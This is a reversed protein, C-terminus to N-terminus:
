RLITFSGKIIDQKGSPDSVDLVYFYTGDKLDDGDWDNQYNNNEYVVKGWRNFVKLANGNFTELLDFELFDNIGDGNPTFVNLDRVVIECAEAVAEEGYKCEVGEEVEGNAARVFLKVEKGSIWHHIGFDDNSRYWEIEGNATLNLGSSDLPEGAQNVGRVEYYDAGEVVPWYFRQKIVGDDSTVISCIPDTKVLSDAVNVFVSDAGFCMSNDTTKRVVLKYWGTKDMLLTDTDENPVLQDPADLGYYWERVYRTNTSATDENYNGSETNILDYQDGICIISDNGIEVRVKQKTIRIINSDVCGNNFTVKSKIIFTNGDGYGVGETDLSDNLEGTLVADNNVQGGVFLNKLILKGDSDYGITDHTKVGNISDLIWTYAIPTGVSLPDNPDIPYNRFKGKVLDKIIPWDEELCADIDLTSVKPHQYYTVFTEDEAYCRARFKQKNYTYDYNLGIGVTWFGDTKNTLASGPFEYTAPDPETVTPLVDFKSNRKGGQTFTLQAPAGSSQGRYKFVFSDARNIVGANQAKLADLYFPTNTPYCFDKQSDIVKLNDDDKFTYEFTTNSVYIPVIVDEDLSFGGRNVLTNADDGKRSIMVYRGPGLNDHLVVTFEDFEGIGNVNKPDVIISDIAQTNDDAPLLTTGRFIRFDRRDLSNLLVPKTLTFDLTNSACDFEWASQTNNFNASEVTPLNPNCLNQASIIIRLQRNTRSIVVPNAVDLIRKLNGNGDPVLKLIPREETVEINIAATYVTQGTPMAPVFYLVGTNPDFNFTDAPFPRQSSLPSIMRAAENKDIFVSTLRFSLRDEFPIKEILNNGSADTVIYELDEGDMDRVLKNLNYSYERGECVSEVVGTNTLWETTKNIGNNVIVKENPPTDASGTVLETCTPLVVSSIYFTQAQEINHNQPSQFEKATTINGMDLDAYVAFYTKNPDLMVPSSPDNRYIGGDTVVPNNLIYDLQIQPVLTLDDLTIETTTINGMKDDEVLLVVKSDPLDLAATNPDDRYFQLTIQYPLPTNCDPNTNANGIYELSIEGGAYVESDQAQSNFAGIFLIGVFLVIYKKM